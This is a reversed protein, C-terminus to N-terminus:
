MKYSLCLLVHQEKERQEPKYLRNRVGRTKTTQLPHALEAGEYVGLGSLNALHAVQRAFVGAPNRQRQGELLRRRGAGFILLLRADPRLRLRPHVQVQPPLPRHLLVAEDEDVLDSYTSECFTLM